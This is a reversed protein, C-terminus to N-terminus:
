RASRWRDLFALLDEPPRLWVDARSPRPEPRVLAALGAPAVAAFGDEDTLDDGLYAALAGPRESLVTRVATAKTTDASRLELGADFPSLALHPAGLHGLTARAEAAVRATADASLGRFHLAVAGPKREVREPALHERGWCEAACLAEVAADPLPAREVRGDPWRREV